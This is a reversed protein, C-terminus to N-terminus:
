DITFRLVAAPTVYDKNNTYVNHTNVAYKNTVYEDTSTKFMVTITDINNPENAECKDIVIGIVRIFNMYKGDSLVFENNSNIVELLSDSYKQITTKEAKFLHSMRPKHLYFSYVTGLEYNSVPACSNYNNVNKM